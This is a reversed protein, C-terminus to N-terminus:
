EEEPTNRAVFNLISVPVAYDRDWARENEVEELLAIVPEPSYCSMDNWLWPYRLEFRERVLSKVRGYFSGPDDEDCFFGSARIAGELCWRCATSADWDVPANDRNRAMQSQTWGLRILQSPRVPMGTLQATTM